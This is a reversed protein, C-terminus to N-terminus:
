STRAELLEAAKMSIMEELEEDSYSQAKADGADRKEASVPTIAGTAQLWLKAMQAQKPDETDLAQRRLQELVEQKKAPDGVISSAEDEWCARIRKDKKWNRLTRSTVGLEDALLDQNSPVREHPPTTLWEVFRVKRQDGELRAHLDSM